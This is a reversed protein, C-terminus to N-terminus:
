LIKKVNEVITNACKLDIQEMVSAETYRDVCFAIQGGLLPNIIRTLMGAKGNAHYAIPAKANKEGVVGALAPATLQSLKQKMFDGWMYYLIDRKPLTQLM